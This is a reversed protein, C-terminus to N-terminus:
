RFLNMTKCIFITICLNLFFVTSPSAINPPMNQNSVTGCVDYSYPPLIEDLQYWDIPYNNTYLRRLLPCSQSWRLHEMIEDDGPVWSGIRVKCFYCQVHDTNLGIYFFGSRALKEPNIFKVPWNKFTKLREKEKHLDCESYLM